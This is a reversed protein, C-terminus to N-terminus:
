TTPHILRRLSADPKMTHCARFLPKRSVQDETFSRSMLAHTVLAEADSPVFPDM